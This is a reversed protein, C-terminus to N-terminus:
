SLMFHKTYTEHAWGPLHEEWSEEQLCIRPCFCESLLAQGERWIWVWRELM